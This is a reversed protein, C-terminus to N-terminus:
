RLIRDSQLIFHICTKDYRNKCEKKCDPNLKMNVAKRIM